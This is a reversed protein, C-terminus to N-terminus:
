KTGKKKDKKEDDGTDTKVIELRPIKDGAKFADYIKGTKIANLTGRIESEDMDHTSLMCITKAPRRDVKCTLAHTYHKSM